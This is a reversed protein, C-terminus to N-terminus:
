KLIVCLAKMGLKEEPIFAHHSIHCEGWVTGGFNFIWNKISFYLNIILTM